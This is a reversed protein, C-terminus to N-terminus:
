KGRNHDKKELLFWNLDDQPFNNDRHYCFGYDILSLDFKDMMEGAFDRKFLRDNNGRYNVSVPTPNYYEAICIYKRSSKYLLEYVKPLEEPNVHILVGKILALDRQYDPEFELITQNYAKIWEVEKLISFAKKNIEVASFEVDKMLARIAYLNLGINSGFEIVSKIGATKSLVQSFMNTNSSIIKHDNNRDIYEDGFAGAWFSEQETKFEKM